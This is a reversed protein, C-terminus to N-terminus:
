WNAMGRSMFRLPPASYGYGIALASAYVADDRASARLPWGVTTTVAAGIL